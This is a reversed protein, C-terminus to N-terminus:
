GICLQMACTTHVPFAAMVRWSSSSKGSDWVTGSTKNWWHTSTQDMVESKMDVTLKQKPKFAQANEILLETPLILANRTGITPCPDIRAWAAMCSKPDDDLKYLVKLAHEKRGFLM